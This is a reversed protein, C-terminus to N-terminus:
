ASEERDKMMERMFPIKSAGSRSEEIFKRTEEREM